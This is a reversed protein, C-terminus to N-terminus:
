GRFVVLKVKDGPRLAAKPDLANLTTFREVKLDSYAMRGALSAITDGPKVTVIQIVRPKVAAAQAATMRKMSQVLSSFPGLGSGAPTITLFHFAQDGSWRYATVTVDVRTQGSNAQTTATLAELGGIISRQPTSYNVQQQGGSLGAFVRSIYADLGGGGLSGGAFQARGGNGEITVASTGNSINYGAPVQFEFKLEPHRFWRGDVIGQSPDDDFITGNLASLFADRNRGGQGQKGGVAAAQRRAREVRDTTLPHSRAWGPIQAEANKGSLQAELRSSRELGGLMDASAYPDYGAQRLYRIGLDDAQYEQNRSYSLTYLQSAQGAVQALESSGTLVGVLVSGITGITSRTNRKQSHRAAVHGVEHGLVSALEAEDNMIGFLQRTVYVYGGPVAFANLVPSNLLTITYDNASNALGSQVAVKRGIATVYNAQSGAYVGGFEELLQPHAKAGLAKDSASISRVKSGQADAPTQTCAVILPTLALMGAVGTKLIRRGSM